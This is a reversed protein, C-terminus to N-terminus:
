RAGGLEGSAAPHDSLVGSARSARVAAEQERRWREALTVGGSRGRVGDAGRYNEPVGQKRRLRAAHKCSDCCFVATRSRGVIAKGCVVCPRRWM